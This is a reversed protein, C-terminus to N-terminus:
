LGIVTANSFDIVGQVEIKGNLTNLLMGNVGIVHLASSVAYILGQSSGSSNYYTHGSINAQPNTGLTVRLANSSDYFEFGFPDLEIREGSTATKITNGILTAGTITGGSITSASISGSFSAGAATMIGANNVSFNSGIQISGGLFSGGQVTGTFIGDVGELRGTFKLRNAIADYYLSSQGNVKWDMVDSNLTLKSKHDSREVVIGESKSHTVGFYPKDYKVANQNLKNVATTLSGDVKFESQQDSVSPSEISMRLGGKFSFTQRLIVSRYNVLGNWPINMNQWTIAADEWTVGEYQEFGFIDGQELQPFGRADMQVPLYSFGNMTSLLNNTMAQNMLPNELTLTNNEEGSGASYSLQDESNYMVVVKTFTKAPNTQKVRVYDSATMEFVPESTSAFRQFKIIGDKGTIVNASNAGAIYGMVQRKTYGTPAVPVQYTPNIVVSSDYVFGLSTCIEDWVNKMSTPYTLASVYVEDAFVLKDYCTFTWVDNIKERSDVYFEGLPLWDSSTGEWTIHMDEWPYTTQDWTLGSLILSLYPVIRANEPIIRKTRLTIILKSPIATGLEFGDMSSISNEISFDVIVTDDYEIGDIVAKVLFERNPRRLYDAYIPSIPYM